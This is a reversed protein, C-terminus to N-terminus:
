HVVIFAIHLLFGGVRVGDGVLESPEMAAMYM